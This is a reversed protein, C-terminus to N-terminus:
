GYDRKLRQLSQDLFAAVKPNARHSMRSDLLHGTMSEAFTEVGDSRGLVTRSLTVWEPSEGFYHSVDFNDDLAHSLEHILAHRLAFGSLRPVVYIVRSGHEYEAEKGRELPDPTIEFSDIRAARVLWPPLSGLVDKIERAYVSDNDGRVVPTAM